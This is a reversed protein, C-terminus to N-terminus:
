TDVAANLMWLLIDTYIYIFYKPNICPNLQSRHLSSDFSWKCSCFIFMYISRVKGNMSKAGFYILHIVPTRISVSFLTMDKLIKNM